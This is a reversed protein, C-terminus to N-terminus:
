KSKIPKIDKIESLPVWTDFKSPWYLWRVLGQKQKGKGKYKVIKEIKYQKDLPVTVKQIENEYFGGKLMEGALDKIRYVPTGQRRYRKAVTFVEGSFKQDYVREFAQRKYSIRVHDGINVKFSKKKKLKPKEKKIEAKIKNNNLKQKQQQKLVPLLAQNAWVQDVNSSNVQDPSMLIVSHYTANYNQAIQPLVDVWRLENKHIMYRFLMRKITQIVREAYVAKSENHAVYHFINKSKYFEKMLGGTFEHGGDTRLRTPAKGAEELISEFAQKVESMTKTKLARMWLFRSFIDIVVLIYSRMDNVKADARMDMLDADFIEFPAMVPIKNNIKRKDVRRRIVPKNMTYVDISALWQKIKGITLTKYKGEQQVAKFLKGASAFGGPHKPDFYIKKLYREWQEM